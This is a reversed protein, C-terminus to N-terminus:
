GPLFLFWHTGTHSPRKVLPPVGGFPEYIRIKNISLGSAAPSFYPRKLGKKVTKPPAKRPESHLIYFSQKKASFAIMKLVIELKRVVVLSDGYSTHEIFYSFAGSYYYKYGVKIFLGPV